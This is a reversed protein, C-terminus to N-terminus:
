APTEEESEEKNIVSNVYENAKQKVYEIREQNGEKVEFELYRKFFFKMKKPKLSMSICREFLNRVSAKTGKKVELDLYM